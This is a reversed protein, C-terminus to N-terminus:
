RWTEVNEDRIFSGTENLFNSLAVCALFVSSYNKKKIRFRNDLISFRMYLRGIANEVLVRARVIM